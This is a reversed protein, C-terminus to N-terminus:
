PSFSLIFSLLVNAIEVSIYHVDGFLSVSRYLSGWEQRGLTNAKTYYEMGRGFVREQTSVSCAFGIVLGM